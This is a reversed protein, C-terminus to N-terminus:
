VFVIRNKYIGDFTMSCPGVLGNKSLHGKDEKFKM